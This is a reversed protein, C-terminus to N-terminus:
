ELLIWSNRHQTDFVDIVNQYDVHSDREIAVLFLDSRRYDLISSRATSKIYKMNSFMREATASSVSIVFFLIGLSFNEETTQCHWAMGPGPHAV